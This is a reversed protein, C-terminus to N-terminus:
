RGEIFRTVTKSNADPTLKLVQARIANSADETKLLAAKEFIDDEWFEEATCFVTSFWGYAKGTQSVKQQRACMTIFMHTQLETLAHDFKAKHEKGDLGSMIKITHLPVAGQKKVVDYILKADHSLLGDLYMADFSRGHRRVALFYPYWEATIYGSKKFFLKSYAIDHREELVRMRWEWPDTNLNGTHWRVPTAYPPTENWSWNVISYMGQANPGSMSFGAEKLASIFDEYGLIM